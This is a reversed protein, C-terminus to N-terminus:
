GPQPVGGVFSKEIPALGVLRVNASPALPVEPIEVATVLPDACVTIRETDPTGEPAVAESFGVDTVAPLEEVSVTLAPVAAAPVYVSVTVPVPVLAVCEVVTPRVTVGLPPPITFPPKSVPLRA